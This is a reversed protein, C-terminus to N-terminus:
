EIGRKVMFLQYVVSFDTIVENIRIKKMYPVLYIGLYFLCPLASLAIWPGRVGQRKKLLERGRSRM